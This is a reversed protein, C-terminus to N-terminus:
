PIPYPFVFESLTVSIQRGIPGGGGVLGTHSGTTTTQGLEHDHLGNGHHPGKPELNTQPNNVNNHTPM